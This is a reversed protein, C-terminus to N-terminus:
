RGNVAHSEGFPQLGAGAHGDGVQLAVEVFREFVADPGGDAVEFGGDGPLLRQPPDLGQEAKCFSGAWIPRRSM